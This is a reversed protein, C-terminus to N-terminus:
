HREETPSTGIRYLRVPSATLLLVHPLSTDFGRCPPPETPFACGEAVGRRAFMQGYECTIRIARPSDRVYPFGERHLPIRSDSETQRQVNPVSLNNRLKRHWFTIPLLNSIVVTFYNFTLGNWPGVPDM